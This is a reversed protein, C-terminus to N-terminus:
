VFDLGAKKFNGGLVGISDGGLWNDVIKAYVARFDTEYHVDGGNNELTTNSPDLNNLSAATGYLGGQVTTGYANGTNDFVLGTAANGGDNGGTFNYLVQQTGAAGARHMLMAAALVFAFVAITLSLSRKSKM